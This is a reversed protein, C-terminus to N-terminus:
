MGFFKLLQVKFSLQSSESVSQRCALWWANVVELSLADIVKPHENEIAVVTERSIGIEKAIQAQTFGAEKRLGRLEKGSFKM